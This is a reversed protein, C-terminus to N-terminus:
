YEIELRQQYRMKEGPINTPYEGTLCALCIDSQPKGLAKVLGELSTYGLTDATIERAVEEVSKGTAVFQDRTKMDVGYYCPARIPPCGIRVHVEKAGARRVMQVIKRLTTGRVISDDVLVVRKGKVTSKIPNLKLAVSEERESQDPLIFTREIYRNKMLGEDYKIGSGESYGVAHGRGSDPVSIIVDADVPQEEALQRGVNKRAQFVELGDITSDPRAFYVWEFMCTAKNPAEPVKASQFGEPTIEVIEGPEVDRIFHGRLIEFASDESAIAYGDPLTGIALPRFGMPDRVGFVRDEIMLTLSYAGDLKRMTNKIAKFPDPTEVLENALIRVVIESDSNTLFAWGESQLKSRLNDANVIDGNHAIALEGASTTVVMPQCNEFSSSGSTSYRVHGIGAKGKIMEFERGCLVEHVLGMGRIYKIGDQFVAIGTSEQGRHQIARLGKKLFVNAESTLAMAVVGCSHKPKDM